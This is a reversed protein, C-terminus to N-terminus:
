PSTPPRLDRRVASWNARDHRMRRTIRHDGIARGIRAITTRMESQVMAVTLRGSAVHFPNVERRFWRFFLVLAGKHNPHASWPIKKQESYIRASQNHKRSKRLILEHPSNELRGILSDPITVSDIEDDPALIAMYQAYLWLEVLPQLGESNVSDLNSQFGTIVRSVGEELQQIAATIKGEITGLPVNADPGYIRTRYAQVFALCKAEQDVLDHGYAEDIAERIVREMVQASLTMTQDLQNGLSAASSLEHANVGLRTLEDVSESASQLKRNVKEVFPIEANFYQRPGVERTQPISTDVHLRSCVASGINGILSIPFPGSELAGFMSSALNIRSQVEAAADGVFQEYETYAGDCAIKMSVMKRISTECARTFRSEISVMSRTWATVAPGLNGEPRGGIRHRVHQRHRSSLDELAIRAEASVTVRPLIRPPTLVVAPGIEQTPLARNSISQFTQVAAQVTARLVTEDQRLWMGEFVSDSLKPSLPGGLALETLDNMFLSARVLERRTRSNGSSRIKSWTSVSYETRDALAQADDSSLRNYADKVRLVDDPRVSAADLGVEVKGWRSGHVTSNEPM